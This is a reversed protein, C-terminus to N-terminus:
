LGRIEHPAVGLAAVIRGAMEVNIRTPLQPQAPERAGPPPPLALARRLDGRDM